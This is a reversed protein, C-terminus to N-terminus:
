EVDDLARVTEIMCIVTTLENCLTNAYRASVPAYRLMPMTGTASREGVPAFKAYRVVNEAEEASNVHPVIIAQAGGDLARSIWDSTNAPVRVIPTLSSILQGCWTSSEGTLLLLVASNTRPILVSLRTSSISSFVTSDLQPPTASSRLVALWSSRYPM